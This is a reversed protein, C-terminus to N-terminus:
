SNNSLSEDQHISNQIEDIENTLETLKIELESILVMKSDLQEEYNISQELLGKFQYELQKLIDLEKIDSNCEFSHDNSPTSNPNLHSENFKMILDNVYDQSTQLEEKLQEHAKKLTSYGECEIQLAANREKLEDNLKKKETLNNELNVKQSQLNHMEQNLNSITHDDRRQKELAEDLLSTSHNLETQYEYKATTYENRLKQFEEKLYNNEKEFNSKAQDSDFLDKQLQENKEILATQKQHESDLAHNLKQIHAELESIKHQATENEKLLQNVEEQYQQAITEKNTLLHLNEEKLKKLQSYHYNNEYDQVKAQYKALESKFYIIKQQLQITDTMKSNKTHM